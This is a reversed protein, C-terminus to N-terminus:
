APFTFQALPLTRLGKGAWRLWLNRAKPSTKMNETGVECKGLQCILLNLKGKETPYALIIFRHFHWHAFSCPEM